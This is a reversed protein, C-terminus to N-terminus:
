KNNASPILEWLMELSTGEKPEEIALGLNPSLIPKRQNAGGESFYM